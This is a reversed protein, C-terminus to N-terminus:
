DGKKNYKLKLDLAQGTAGRTGSKNPDKEAGFLKIEDRDLNM